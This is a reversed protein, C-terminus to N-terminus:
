GLHKVQAQGDWFRLLLDQNPKINKVSNIIEKSGADQCISYGQKLKHLPNAQELRQILSELQSKYQSHQHTIHQKAFLLQQSIQQKKQTLQSLLFPGLPLLEHTIRQKIATYSRCLHEAAATPTPCTFDAAADCLHHDIDHGVATVCPISTAAIARVLGEDNFGALDQASGGGRSIVLVDLGSDTSKDRYALARQMAAQISAPSQSGQMTAPIITLAIHPALLNVRKVFDWMAASDYATILGMTSPYNPLPQKKAADFLGEQQLKAKLAALEQKMLGEGSLSMYNIQLMLSGRKPYFCLKAKVFVKLGEKLEFDLRKLTSAYLVANISAKGDSLYCYIQKGLHYHKVQSLEGTLSLNDFVGDGELYTQILQNLDSIQLHPLEQM